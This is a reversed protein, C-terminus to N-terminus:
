GNNLGGVWIFVDILKVKLYYYRKVVVKEDYRLKEFTDELRELYSGIVTALHENMLEPSNIYTVLSDDTYVKVTDKLESFEQYELMKTIDLFMSKLLESNYNTNSKIVKLEDLINNILMEIEDYSNVKAKLVKNHINHLSKYQECLEQVADKDRATTKLLQALLHAM